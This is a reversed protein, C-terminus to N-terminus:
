SENNEIAFNAGWAVAELREIGHFSAWDDGFRVVYLPKGEVEFARTVEGGSDNIWDIAGEERDKETCTMRQDNTQDLPM